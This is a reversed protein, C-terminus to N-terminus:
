LRRGSTAGPSPRFTEDLIRGLDFVRGERVLGLAERRKAEDVHELMGVEVSM